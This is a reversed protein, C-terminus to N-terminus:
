SQRRLRNGVRVQWGNLREDTPDVSGWNGLVERADLWRGDAELINLLANYADSRQAPSAARDDAVIRAQTEADAHEGAGFLVRACELRMWREPNTALLEGALDVAEGEGAETALQFLLRIAWPEGRRPQLVSRAAAYDGRGLHLAKLSLVAVPEDTSLRQEAIESWEGGRLGAHTLLALGAPKAEPGEGETLAELATRATAPEEGLALRATAAM